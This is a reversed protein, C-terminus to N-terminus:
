VEGMSLNVRLEYFSIYQTRVTGNKNLLAEYARLM